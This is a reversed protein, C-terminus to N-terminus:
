RGVLQALKEKEWRASSMLAEADPICALVLAGLGSPGAADAPTGQFDAPVPELELGNKRALRLARPMHWASTVLGVHEGPKIAQALHAFEEATNTGGSQELVDRPVGLAELITIAQESPDLGDPNIAQIRQGTCVIRRVLGAQYLQAALVIRDGAPNVQPRGNAGLSAGGGLLVLVDFPRDRTPEVALFPREDIGILYGILPGNGCVTLTVWLAAAWVASGLHRRVIALRFQIALGLWLLGIPAVLRQVIKEVVSRGDVIGVAVVIAVV